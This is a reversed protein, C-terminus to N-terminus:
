KMNLGYLVGNGGGLVTSPVQGQWKQIQEYSVLEPHSSLQEGIAALAKAQAEGQLQIAKANAEAEKVLQYAKGDARAKVADREANATNVAQQAILNQQELKHRERQADEYSKKKELVAAMYQQPLGVNELQVSDITVPFGELSATLRARIESVTKEREAILQDASFKSLAEKAKTQVKPQIIRREFQQLGGFQQYISMAQDPHVTWNVSVITNNLQLRDKTAADLKVSHLRQRVEFNEVTELWPMKWHFGPKTQEVAKGLHLVVSRHGEPTIFWGGWAISGCLLVVLAVIGVGTLKKTNM